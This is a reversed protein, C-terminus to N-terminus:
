GSSVRVVRGDETGGTTVRAVSVHASLLHSAAKLAVRSKERVGHAGAVIIM